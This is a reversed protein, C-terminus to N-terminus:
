VMIDNKETFTVDCEVSRLGATCAGTMREVEGTSQILANWGKGLLCVVVDREGCSKEKNTWCCDKQTFINITSPITSYTSFIM